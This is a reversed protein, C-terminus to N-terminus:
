YRAVKKGAAFGAPRYAILQREEGGGGEAIMFAKWRIPGQAM